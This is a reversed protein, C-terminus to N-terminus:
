DVNEVVTSLLHRLILMNDEGLIAAYEAEIELKIRYADELFQYGKDTFHVQVARKDTPDPVRKIYDREELERTIQGMAQKSVGAREALVSIHTGTTDLNSILATHYLTLGEHGYDVLKVLARESYARAARQFLRGINEQRMKLLEDQNIDSM